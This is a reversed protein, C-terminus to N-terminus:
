DVGIARRAQGTAARQDRCQAFFADDGCEVAVRALNEQGRTEFESRESLTFRFPGTCRHVPGKKASDHALLLNVTPTANAM